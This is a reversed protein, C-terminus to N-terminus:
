QLNKKLYDDIRLEMETRSLGTSLNDLVYLMGNRVSTLKNESVTIKRKFLFSQIGFGGHERILEWGEEGMRNLYEIKERPILQKINDEIYEFKDPM